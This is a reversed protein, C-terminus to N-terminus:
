RYRPPIEAKRNGPVRRYYRVTRSFRFVCEDSIEHDSSAGTLDLGPGSASCIPDRFVILQQTNLLFQPRCGPEGALLGEM